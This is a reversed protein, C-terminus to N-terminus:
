IEGRKAADRISDAYVEEKPPEFDDPSLRRIASQDKLAKFLSRLGMIENAQNKLQTQIKSLERVSDSVEITNTM